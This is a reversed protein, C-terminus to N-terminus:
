LPKQVTLNQTKAKFLTGNNNKCFPNCFAISSTELLLVIDFNSVSFNWWFGLFQLLSLFCHLIIYFCTLVTWIIAFPEKRIELGYFSLENLRITFEHGHFTCKIIGSIEPHTISIYNPDFIKVVEITLLTYISGSKFKESKM